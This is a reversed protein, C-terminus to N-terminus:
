SVPSSFLDHTKASGLGYAAEVQQIFINQGGYSPHRVQICNMSFSEVARHADGGIAVVKEPQLLNIIEHFFERCAERERATHSRNSMPDDPEHPHLPFVNWLFVPEGIRALMQWIVKATREGVAPGKTAKEVPLGRFLASYAELHMEDTLALGTRRGGRYGLDRAIWITRVKLDVATSLSLELNQRRRAAADPRDHLVCHDVYPNFVNDLQVSSLADTFSKARANM